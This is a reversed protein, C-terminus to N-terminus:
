GSNNGMEDKENELVFLKSHYRVKDQFYCFEAM